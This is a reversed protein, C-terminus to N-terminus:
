KERKTFRVDYGAFWLLLVVGWTTLAAAMGSAIAEALWRDM